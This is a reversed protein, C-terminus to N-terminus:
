GKASTVLQTRKCTSPAIEPDVGFASRYLDGALQLYKGHEGDREHAHEFADFSQHIHGRAHPDLLRDALAFLVNDEKWIHARLLEIYHIVATRFVLLAAHDHTAAPLERVMKQILRRGEDHEALMCAIPGDKEPVGVQKLVPFLQQEEKHHHCGDAFNRLFDIAQTFFDADLPEGALKREMASLVREIVRHEDKLVQVPDAHACSCKCGASM